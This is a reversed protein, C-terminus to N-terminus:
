VSEDKSEEASTEASTEAEPVDKIAALITVPIFPPTETVHALTAKYPGYNSTVPQMTWMNMRFGFPKKLPIGRREVLDLVQPVFTVIPGLGEPAVVKFFVAGFAPVVDTCKIGATKGSLSPLAEWALDRMVNVGDVTLVAKELHEEGWGLPLHVTLQHLFVHPNSASLAAEGSVQLDVEFYSLGSAAQKVEPKRIVPLTNYYVGRLAGPTELGESAYRPGAESFMHTDPLSLTHTHTHAGACM